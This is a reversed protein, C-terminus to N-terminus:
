SDKQPLNKNTSYIYLHFCIAINLDFIVSYLFLVIVPGYLLQAATKAM